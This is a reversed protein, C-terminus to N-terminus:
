KRDELGIIYSCVHTFFAQSKLLTPWSKNAINPNKEAFRLIAILSEEVTVRADCEVEAILDDVKQKRLRTHWEFMIAALFVACQPIVQDIRGQHEEFFEESFFDMYEKKGNESSGRRRKLSGFRKVYTDTVIKLRSAQLFKEATLDVGFVREFHGGEDRSLFLQKPNKKALEPQRYFTAAFAQAGEKLRIVRGELQTGIKREILQREERTFGKVEGERRELYWGLTALSNALQVIYPHNSRLFSSEVKNQNNLNVAVNSAFEKDGQSTIIRIPVLVDHKLNKESFAQHIVRATQGGNVIQAKSITVTATFPDWGASECLFTIGNNYHFFHASESGICTDRISANTSKDGQYVRINQQLLQEGYQAYLAAVRTGPAHFIYCDHDASRVQYPVGREIEFVIQEEVTPLTKNYFSDQLFRINEVRWSIFDDSPGQLGEV